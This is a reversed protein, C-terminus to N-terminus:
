KMKPLASSANSFAFWITRPWGPLSALAMTNPSNKGFGPPFARVEPVRDCMDAIVAELGFRDYWENLSDGGVKEPFYRTLFILVVEVLLTAALFYPIHGLEKFESINPLPKPSSDM